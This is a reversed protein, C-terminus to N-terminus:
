LADTAEGVAVYNLSPGLLIENVITPFLYLLILKWLNSKFILIIFSLRQLFSSVLHKFHIIVLYKRPFNVVHNVVCRSLAQRRPRDGIMTLYIFSGLLAGVLLLYVLLRAMFIFNNIQRVLAM